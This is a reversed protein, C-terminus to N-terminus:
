TDRSAGTSAGSGDQANQKLEASDYRITCQIDVIEESAYDLAGFQVSTFFPKKLIWQEIEIGASDIQYIRISDGIAKNFNSKSITKQDTYQSPYQYGAKLLVNYLVDDVSPKLAAAITMNISEWELRGPYYYFHNLYKHTIENVKAKPKDVKKLAYRVGDLTPSDIAAATTGGFVMYWRFQRLPEGASNWFAM